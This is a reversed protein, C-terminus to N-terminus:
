FSMAAAVGGGHASVAPTIQLEASEDDDDSGSTLWLVVATIAGAIAVGFAVDAFLALTEGNDAAEETPDEDFSSQESLALFGLVSGTILGVGAVASSVWVGAPISEDEEAAEEEPEEYEEGEGEEGFEDGVPPLVVFAPAVEHREGFTMTVTETVPEHGELTLAVTHDGPPVEVEAPTVEERAVEDITIAAGPPTSTLVLTAPRARLEAISQEVEARDPADARETLYREYSEVAGAANGGRERAHAVGILVVPNPVAGYAEMFAAESQEFEGAELHTQGRGYAERATARDADSPGAPEAAARRRRRQADASSPSLVATAMAFLVLCSFIRRM